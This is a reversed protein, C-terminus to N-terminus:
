KLLGRKRTEISRDAGDIVVDALRSGSTGKLGVAPPFLGDVSAPLYKKRLAFNSKKLIKRGFM